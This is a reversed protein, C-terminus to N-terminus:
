SHSVSRPSRRIGLCSEICSKLEKRIRLAKVRLAPLELNLKRALKQRNKKKVAKTGQYYKTILEQKLTSLKELCKDLCDLYSELDEDVQDFNLVIDPPLEVEEIKPAKSELMVYYAVRYFYRVKEGVWNEVMEETLKGAVRDITIDALTDPCKCSQSTFKRTLDTKIRVYERGAADPNPDLWGLLRNLNEPSLNM